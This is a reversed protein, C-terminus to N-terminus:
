DRQTVHMYFADRQGVHGVGKDKWGGILISIQSLFSVYALSFKFKLIINM